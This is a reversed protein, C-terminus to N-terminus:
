PHGGALPGFRRLQIVLWILLLVSSTLMGVLAPAVIRKRGYRLAGPLAALGFLLGAAPALFLAIGEHIVRDAKLDIAISAGVFGLLPLLWSARAFNIPFPADDASRPFFFVDPLDPEPENQARRAALAGGAWSSSVMMALLLIGVILSARRGGLQAARGVIWATLNNLAHLSCAVWYAASLSRIRWAVFAASFIFFAWLASVADGVSAALHLIAWVGASASIAVVKRSTLRQLVWLLPIMLLTEVLPGFVVIGFFGSKIPPRPALQHGLAAGIAAALLVLFIAPIV